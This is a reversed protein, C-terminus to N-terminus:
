KSRRKTQTVAETMDASKYRNKQLTHSQKSHQHQRQNRGDCTTSWYYTHIKNSLTDHTVAVSFQYSRSTRMFGSWSPKSPYCRTSYTDNYERHNWSTRLRSPWSTGRRSPCYAVCPLTRSSNEVITQWYEATIISRALRGSSVVAMTRTIVDATFSADTM